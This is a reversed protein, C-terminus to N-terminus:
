VKSLVMTQERSIIYRGGGGGRPPSLFQIGPLLEFIFDGKIAERHVPEALAEYLERPVISVILDCYEKLSIGYLDKEFNNALVVEAYPLGEIQFALRRTLEIGKYATITKTLNEQRHRIYFSQGSNYETNNAAAVFLSKFQRFGRTTALHGEFWTLTRGTRDIGNAYFLLSLWQVVANKDTFHHYFSSRSVGAEKAIADIHIRDFAMGACLRDLARAIEMKTQFSKSHINGPSAVDVSM